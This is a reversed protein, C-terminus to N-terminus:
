GTRIDSAGSQFVTRVERRMLNVISRERPRVRHVPGALGLVVRSPLGAPVPIAISWWDLSSESQVGEPGRMRRRWAYGKMRFLQVEKAFPSNWDFGSTAAHQRSARDMIRALQRNGVDLLAAAGIASGIVPESDGLRQRTEDDNAISTRLFQMHCDNRISMTVVEGTERHITDTIRALKDETASFQWMLRGFPALRLSPFYTRQDLDFTLYGDATLSKLLQDTSSRAIGLADAIQASRSPQGASALYALVDLARSGSKSYNRTHHGSPM